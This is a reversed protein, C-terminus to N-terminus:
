FFGLHKGRFNQISDKDQDMLIIGVNKFSPMMMFIDCAIDM